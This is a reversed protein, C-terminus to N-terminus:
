YCRRDWACSIWRETFLWAIKKLSVLMLFIHCIRIAFLVSSYSLSRALLCFPLALYLSNQMYLTFCRDEGLRKNWTQFCFFFKESTPFLFLHAFYWFFFFFWQECICYLSLQVETIFSISLGGRGARATRGVRHIYDSSDRFDDLFVDFYLIIPM